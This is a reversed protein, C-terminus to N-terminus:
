VHPELSASLTTDNARALLPAGKVLKHFEHWIAVFQCINAVPFVLCLLNCVCRCIRKSSPINAQQDCIYICIYIYVYIEHTCENGYGHRSLSSQSSKKFFQVWTDMGWGHITQNEKEDGPQALQKSATAARQAMVAVSSPTESEPWHRICIGFPAWQKPTWNWSSM